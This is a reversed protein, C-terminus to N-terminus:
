FHHLSKMKKTNKRQEEVNNFNLNENTQYTALDKRINKNIEVGEIQKEFTANTFILFVVAFPVLGLILNRPIVNNLISMKKISESRTKTVTEPVKYNNILHDIEKISIPLPLEKVAQFYNNLHSMSFSSSTSLTFAIAATKKYKKERMLEALKERGRKIRQKVSSLGSKQIAMIEKLPLDSIEFLILAEKQLPPLQDLAKYLISIDVRKDVDSNPDEINEAFSEDYQGSFKKRRIKNRCINNAVTFLYSLLAKKNKIKDYNELGVLLVDNVLDKPDMLGRSKVICFRILSEHIQEYNAFFEKKDTTNM